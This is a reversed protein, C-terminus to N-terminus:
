VQAGEKVHRADDSSLGLSFPFGAIHVANIAEGEKFGNSQLMKLAHDKARDFGIGDDGLFNGCEGFAFTAFALARFAEYTVLHAHESLEDVESMVVGWDAKLSKVLEEDAKFERPKSKLLTIAKWLGDSTPGSASLFRFKFCQSGPQIEQFGELMLVAYELRLYEESSRREAEFGKLLATSHVWRRDSAWDLHAYPRDEYGYVEDKADQELGELALKYYRCRETPDLVGLTLGM